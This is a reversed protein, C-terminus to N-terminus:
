NDKKRFYWCLTGGTMGAIIDWIIDISPDKRFLKSGNAIFALEFLEWLIVILFLILFKKNTKQISKFIKLIFFMMVFGTIIHIFTYYNIYIFYSSIIETNLFDVVGLKFENFGGVM